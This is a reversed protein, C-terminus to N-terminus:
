SVVASAACATPALTVGVTGFASISGTAGPGFGACGTLGADYFKPQSLCAFPELFLKSFVVQWFYSAVDPLDSM